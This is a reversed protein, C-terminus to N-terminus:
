KLWFSLEQATKESNGTNLEILRRLHTLTDTDIGIFKFGVNNKFLHVMEANFTLSIDTSPLHININCIDGIKAAAHIESKFLAGKISIDLLEADYEKTDFEIQATAEFKIRSFYREESMNDGFYKIM